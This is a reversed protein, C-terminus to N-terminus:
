STLKRNINLVIYLCCLMYVKGCSMVFGIYVFVVVEELRVLARSARCHSNNKDLATNGRVGNVSSSMEEVLFQAM